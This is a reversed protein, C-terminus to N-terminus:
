TSTVSPLQQRRWAWRCIVWNLLSPGARTILHERLRAASETSDGDPDAVGVAQAIRALDALLTSDTEASVWGVLDWGASIRDRAYAAALQTKGVGRLGTVACVVAVRGSSAVRALDNMAARGIFGPPERPIEGVVIQRPGNTVAPHRSSGFPVLQPSGENRDGGSSLYWGISSILRRANGEYDEGFLDAGHISALTRGAGIDLDPIQCDDFRVPILWPDDPRRQRLQDIAVLLEENQYSAVRSRSAQSFCALFVLTRATIAQRIQARWDQGPWLDRVDRWVPIGAVELLDQLREAQWSDERVYSIFVHRGATASGAM